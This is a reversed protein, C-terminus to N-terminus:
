AKLTHASFEKVQGWLIDLLKGIVKISTLTSQLASHLSYLQYFHKFWTKYKIIEKAEVYEEGNDIEQSKKNDSNYMVKYSKVENLKM